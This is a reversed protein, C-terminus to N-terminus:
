WASVSDTGALAGFGTKSSTAPPVVWGPGASSGNTGACGGVTATASGLSKEKENRGSASSHVTNRTVLTTTTVTTNIRALLRRRGGGPYWGNGGGGPAAEAAGAGGGPTAEGGDGGPGGGDDHYDPPSSPGNAGSSPGCRAASSPIRTPSSCAPATTPPRQ